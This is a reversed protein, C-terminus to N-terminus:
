NKACIFGPLIWLLRGIKLAGDVGCDKRELSFVTPNLM